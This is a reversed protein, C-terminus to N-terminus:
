TPRRRRAVMALAALAGYVALSPEAPHGLACSSSSGPSGSPAGGVGGSTTSPGSSAGGNGTTGCSPCTPVNVYQTAQLTQSVLVQNPTAGLTMDKSLASVPMNALMRTLFLSSSDIGNFLTAVDAMEAMAAGTATGDGYGSAM